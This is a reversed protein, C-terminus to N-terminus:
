GIERDVSWRAEPHGVLGGLVLVETGFGEVTAGDAHDEGDIIGVGGELACDVGSCGDDALYPGFVDPAYAPDDVREAVVPLDALRKASVGSGRSVPYGSKLKRDIVVVELAPEGTKGFGCDLGKSPIVGGCDDGFRLAYGLVELCADGEL